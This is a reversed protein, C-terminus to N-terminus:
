EDNSKESRILRFVICNCVVVFVMVILSCAITYGMTDTMSTFTNYVYLMPTSTSGFPGGGTLQMPLEFMQIVGGTMQVMILVFINKMSPLTIRLMKVLWGAGDIEAAEYYTSPINMLGAFMILTTNGVGMWVNSIVVALRSTGVKTFFAVRGVGLKILVYNILGGQFNFLNAFMIAVIIGSIVSPVYISTKVLSSGRNGMGRVVHALFFAAAVQLPIITAVFFAINGLSQLFAENKLALEFNRLGVFNVAKYFTWDTFSKSFSNYLPVYVFITMIVVAPFVMIYATLYDKKAAVVAGNKHYRMSM